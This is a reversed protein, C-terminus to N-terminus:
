LDRLLWAVAQDHAQDGVFFCIQDERRIPLLNNFSQALTVLFSNQLLTACRTRPRLLPPYKHLLDKSCQHVYNMPPTGSRRFDVILRVTDRHTLGEAEQQEIWAAMMAFFDDVAGQSVDLFTFEYVGDEHCDVRILTSEQVLVSLDTM